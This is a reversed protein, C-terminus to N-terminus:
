FRSFPIKHNHLNEMSTLEGTINKEKLLTKVRDKFENIYKSGLFLYDMGFTKQLTSVKNYEKEYHKNKDELQTSLTKEM